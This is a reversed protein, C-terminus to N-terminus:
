APSVREEHAWLDARKGHLTVSVKIWEGQRELPRLPTYAAIQMIDRSDHRPASSLWLAGDESPSANLALVSGHMWGEGPVTTAGDIEYEEVPFSKVHFWGNRSELLLVIRPGQSFPIVGTVEDSPASRVNTGTPDVDTVLAPVPTIDGAAQAPSFAVSLVLSILCFLPLTLCSKKM